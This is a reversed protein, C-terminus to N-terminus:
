GQENEKEKLERLKAQAETETLFVIKGVEEFVFVGGDYKELYGLDDSDDSLNTYVYSNENIVIAEVTLTAVGNEGDYEWPMYVTDGVKCPMFKLTGNAIKDELDCLRNYAEKEYDVIDDCYQCNRYTCDVCGKYKHEKDTLRKYDEMM